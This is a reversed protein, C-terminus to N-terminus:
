KREGKLKWGILHELTSSIDRVPDFSSISAWDFLESETDASVYITKENFEAIQEDLSEKKLTYFIEFEATYNRIGVFGIYAEPFKSVAKDFAAKIIESKGKRM